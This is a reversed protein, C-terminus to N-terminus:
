NLVNKEQNNSSNNSKKQTCDRISRVKVFELVIYIHNSSVICAVYLIRDSIEGSQCDLVRNWFLIFFM